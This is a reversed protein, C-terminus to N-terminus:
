LLLFVRFVGNTTKGKSPTTTKFFGKLCQPLRSSGRCSPSKKRKGPHRQPFCSGRCLLPATQQGSTKRPSRPVCSPASLVPRCTFLLCRASCPGVALCVCPSSDMNVSWHEVVLCSESSDRKEEINIHSEKKKQGKVLGMLVDKWTQRTKPKFVAYKSKSNATETPLPLGPPLGHTYKWEAFMATSARSCLLPM